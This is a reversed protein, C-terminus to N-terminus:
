QHELIDNILIRNYSQLEEIIEESAEMLQPFKLYLRTKQMAQLKDIAQRNKAIEKENDAIHSKNNFKM